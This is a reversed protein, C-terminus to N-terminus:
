KLRVAKEVLDHGVEPVAEVGQAQEVDLGFLLGDLVHHPPSLNVLRRPKHRGLNSGVLKQLYNQVSRIGVKKRTLVVITPM